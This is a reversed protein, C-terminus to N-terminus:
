MNASDISQIVSSVLKGSTEWLQKCARDNRAIKSPTAPKSKIFYSGSLNEIGPETCLYITTSAGKEPSLMFFRGLNFLKAFLSDSESAFNTNVVGPHLSYTTINTGTLEKHLQRTFMINFLKSNGYAKMASYGKELQLDTPEFKGSRHAESAVNIIRSSEANNLAPLLEKALIFYALHNVAFAVEFGEKTSKRSRQPLIGANNVLLDIAPYVTIIRKATKVIETMVSLDCLEIHLNTNGTQTSIDRKAHEAKKRNRCVMVVRYSQKALELATIKGIGSNAGTVVATKIM